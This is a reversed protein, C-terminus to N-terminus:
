ISSNTLWRKMFKQKTFNKQSTGPFSIDASSDLCIRQDSFSFQMFTHMEEKAQAALFCSAWILIRGNWTRIGSATASPLGAPPAESFGDRNLYQNQYFGLIINSINLRLLLSCNQSGEWIESLYLSTRYCHYVIIVSEDPCAVGM